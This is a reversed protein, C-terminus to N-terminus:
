GCPSRWSTGSTVPAAGDHHHRLAAFLDALSWPMAPGWPLVFKVLVVLWVAAQWGPRLRGARTIVLALVALVTGQAGMAALLEVISKATATM